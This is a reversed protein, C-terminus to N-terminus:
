LHIWLSQQSGTGDLYKTSDGNIISIGNLEIIGDILYFRISTDENSIFLVEENNGDFKMTIGGSHINLSDDPYEYICVYDADGFHLYSGSNENGNRLRLHSTKLEETSPNFSLDTMVYARGGSTNNVFTLYYSASTSAVSTQIYTAKGDFVSATITNTSPTVKINTTTYTYTSGASKNTLMLYYTSNASTNQKINVKSATGEFNTAYINSATLNAPFTVNQAYDFNYIHNHRAMNSPADWTGDGFLCLSSIQMPRADTDSSPATQSFTLRISHKHQGYTSGFANLSSVPISNWGSWGSLPYTGLTIWSTPASNTSYEVTVSTGSAGDTSVEILLKKVATYIRMDNAVLTIRLRDNATSGTSRGGLYFPSWINSVLKIKAENSAGYNTWNNGGDRSYEITIGSPNAFALRNPNHVSSMAMDIPSVSGAIAKGDNWVLYSEKLTTIPISVNQTGNFTQEIGTGGGYINFLVSNKLATATNANGLLAGKFNTTSLTDSYPNYNLNTDIYSRKKDGYNNVFTLYYATNVNTGSSKLDVKIYASSFEDIPFVKGTGTIYTKDSTGPKPISEWTLNYSDLIKRWPEWENNSLSKRYYLSNNREGNHVDATSAIQWSDYYDDWGKVTIGSNWLGSMPGDKYNFWGTIKYNDFFSPAHASDRVDLIKLYASSNANGSINATIVNTSPNVTIGSDIYTYTTNGELKNGLLIYYTSNDNTAQKILVKNTYTSEESIGSKTAYNAREALEVTDSYTYTLTYATGIQSLKINSIVQSAKTLKALGTQSLTPIESTFAIYTPTNSGPVNTINRLTVMKTNDNNVGNTYCFNLMDNYKNSASQWYHGISWFGNETKISSISSWVNYSDNLGGTYTQRIPSLSFSNFSGSSNVDLKAGHITADNMSVYISKNVKPPYKTNVDYGGTMVPYYFPSSDTTYGVNIYASSFEDIPFVKGTGTIYTKDSTGPKPISEWTLNYSDLIKRWPEWENNSLSKRYYLSNNRKGNHVDSTSAIQWSDYDTYQGKVTIGSNWSSKMPGDKDNFWGTIKCNDFFSPAHVKDRIDLVNLYESSNANGSINATIVNTSPNVQIDTDVYTYSYDSTKNAFSLYYPKDENTAIVRGAEGFKSYESNEAFNLNGDFYTYTLTGDQGLHVNTLIKTPHVTEKTGNNTLVSIHSKVILWGAPSTKSASDSYSIIMDGAYVYETGFYGNSTIKFTAGATTISNSPTWTGSISNSSTISPTLSGQWNLVDKAELLGTLQSQLHTDTDRLFNYSSIVYGYLNTYSTNVNTYTNTVYEKLNNYSTSINTYTTTVYETLNNYSANINTYTTTVYEKLNNYSASINTYTTTVYEKLNNYSTSINTYTEEFHNELDNLDNALINVQDQTAYNKLKPIWVNKNEDVLMAYSSSSDCDISFIYSSGPTYTLNNNIHVGGQVQKLNAM